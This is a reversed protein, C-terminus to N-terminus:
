KRFSLDVSRTGYCLRPKAHASLCGHSRDKPIATRSLAASFARISGDKGVVRFVDNGELASGPGGDFRQVRRLAAEPLTQADKPRIQPLSGSARGDVPVTARSGDM